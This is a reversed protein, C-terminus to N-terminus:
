NEKKVENKFDEVEADIIQISIYNQNPQTRLIKYSSLYLQNAVGYLKLLKIKNENRKKTKSFKAPEFPEIENLDFGIGRLISNYKELFKQVKICNENTAKITGNKKIQFTELYDNCIGQYLENIVKIKELVEESM